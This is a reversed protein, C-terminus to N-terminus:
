SKDRSGMRLMVALTIVQFQLVVDSRQESVRWHRGM